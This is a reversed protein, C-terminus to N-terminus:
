NNFQKARENIEKKSIELEINRNDVGGLCPPTDAMEV